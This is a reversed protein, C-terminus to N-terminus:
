DSTDPGWVEFRLRYDWESVGQLSVVTFLGNWREGSGDTLRWSWAAHGEVARKQQLTWGQARLQEGYRAAVEVASLSSRVRIGEMRWRNEPSGTTSGDVSDDTTIGDPPRISPISIDPLNRWMEGERRRDERNCVHKEPLTKEYSLRFRAGTDSPGKPSISLSADERCLRASRLSRTTVLGEEKESRGRVVWGRGSLTREYNEVVEEPSQATAVVVEAYTTDRVRAGLV